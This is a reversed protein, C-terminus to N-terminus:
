ELRSPIRGFEPRGSRRGHADERGPVHLRLSRKEAGTARPSGAYVDFVRVETLLPGPLDLVSRLMDGVTDTRRSARGSGQRVAPVNVFPEFRPEPAPQM